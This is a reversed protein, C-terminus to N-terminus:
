YNRRKNYEMLKEVIILPIFGTIAYAVLGFFESFIVKVIGWVMLQNNMPDASYGDLVNIIGGYVGWVAFVYLGILIGVVNIM